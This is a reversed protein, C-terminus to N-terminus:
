VNKKTETSKVDSEIKISETGKIASENKTLETSSSQICKREVILSDINLALTSFEDLIKILTYKTMLFSISGNIIHGIIPIIKVSEVTSAAAFIPLVKMLISTMSHMDKLVILSAFMSKSIISMLDAKDIDYKNATNNLGEENLGFQSMFFKIEHALFTFDAIVGVGPILHTFIGCLVSVMASHYTKSKLLEYKKHIIDASCPEITLLLTESKVGELSHVLDIILKPLDHTPLQQCSPVTYHNEHPEANIEKFEDNIKEVIQFELRDITDVVTQSENVIKGDYHYKVFFVPIGKSRVFEALWLDNEDFAKSDCQCILLLDYRSLEVQDIYENKSLNLSEPMEWFIINKNSAHVHGLPEVATIFEYDSEDNVVESITYNDNTLTKIFSQKQLSSPGLIGINIQASKWETLHNVSEKHLNDKTLNLDENDVSNSM